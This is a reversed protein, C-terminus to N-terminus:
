LERTWGGADAVSLAVLRLKWRDYSSIFSNGPSWCSFHSVRGPRFGVKANASWAPVQRYEVPVVRRAPCYICAVCTFRIRIYHCCLVAVRRFPWGKM